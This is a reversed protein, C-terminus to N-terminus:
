ASAELLRGQEIYFGRDAMRRAQGADHTVWLASVEEDLHEGILAEVATVAEADLGSTPEDLLLVRPELILARVLALRQREGTSLREVTWDRVADPLGLREVLPAAKDWDSFHEGVKDGWWGSEAPVYVVRRRWDPGSYDNRSKGDLRVEGRSPDLDAVTRLLLTKGAGSPGRVAVCEGDTLDFSVPHLGTRQLNRVTLM